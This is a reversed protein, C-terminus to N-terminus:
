TSNRSSEEKEDRSNWYGWDSQRVTDAGVGTMLMLSRTWSHAIKRLVGRELRRHDAEFVPLYHSYTVRWGARRIDWLVKTDENASLALDFGGAEILAAKRIIMNSGSGAPINISALFRIGLSFLKYYTSYENNASLKPGQVVGVDNPVILDEWNAFYEKGFIMDADTFLLWASETHDAGIQRAVPINGANRIIRTNRPRHNQVLEPTTDSSADVVILRVEKHLSALFAKINTSENKTPVIVTLDSLQM